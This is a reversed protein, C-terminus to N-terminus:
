DLQVGSSLHSTLSFRVWFGGDRVAQAMCAYVIDKRELAEARERLFYRFVFFNAIEGLFSGACVIGFGIWLGTAHSLFSLDHALSDRLLNLSSPSKGWM